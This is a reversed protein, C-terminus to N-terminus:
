RCTAAVKLFDWIMASHNGIAYKRNDAAMFCGDTYHTFRGQLQARISASISRPM